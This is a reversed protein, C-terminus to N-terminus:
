DDGTLKEHIVPNTEPAEESTTCASLLLQEAMAAADDSAAHIIALPTESDLLTGIRAVDSLGVSLDLKEGVMHRGGGLEIMTNGVARVNVASLFGSAHVPRTVPARVLHKSSNAVFGRPGGLAVCM